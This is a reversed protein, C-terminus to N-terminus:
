IDLAQVHTTEDEDYQWYRDLEDIEAAEAAAAALLALKAAVVVGKNAWVVDAVDGCTPVLPAPWNGDLVIRDM